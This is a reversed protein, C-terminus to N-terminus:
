RISSERPSEKTNKQNAPEPHTSFAGPFPTM